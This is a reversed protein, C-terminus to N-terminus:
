TKRLNFRVVALTTSLIRDILLDHNTDTDAAATLAGTSIDCTIDSAAVFTGAGASCYFQSEDTVKIAMRSKTSAYDSDTSVIPKDLYVYEVKAASTLVEYTLASTTRKLPTGPVLATSATIIIRELNGDVCKGYPLFGSLTSM